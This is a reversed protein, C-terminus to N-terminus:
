AAIAEGNIQRFIHASLLALIPYLFLGPVGYAFGDVFGILWGLIMLVIFPGVNKTAASASKGIADGVGAGRDLSYLPAIAFFFAAVIGPLICLITGIVIALGTVISTIIFPVLHETSTLDGIAPAGGRTVKLAARYIGIRLIAVLIGFIIGLVLTGVLGSWFNSSDVLNGNDDIRLGDVTSEALQNTVIQGILNVVFIVGSLVLFQGIHQQFKAFAWSFASGIDATGATQPTMGPTYPQYGGTYGAGGGPPMPPPLGGGPPSPPPPTFGGGPPGPPPPPPPTFGGGPPPPPPPVNGQNPDYPDSM